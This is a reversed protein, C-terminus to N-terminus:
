CSKKGRDGKEAAAGEAQVLRLGNVKAPPKAAAAAQASGGRGVQLDHAVPVAQPQGIGPRPDTEAHWGFLGM